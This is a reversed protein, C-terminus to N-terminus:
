ASGDMLFQATSIARNSDHLFSTNSYISQYAYRGWKAQLFRGLNYCVQFTIHEVTESRLLHQIQRNKLLFIIEKLKGAQSHIM